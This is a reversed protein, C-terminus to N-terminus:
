KTSSATLFVNELTKYETKGFKDRVEFTNVNYGPSLVVIESFNGQQDMLIPRGNLAIYQTRLATGLIKVTSTSFTSGNTPESITISPGRAIDRFAFLAYGIVLLFCVLVISLNLVRKSDIRTGM